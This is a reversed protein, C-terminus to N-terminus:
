IFNITNSNRLKKTFLDKGFDHGQKINAPDIEPFITKAGLDNM